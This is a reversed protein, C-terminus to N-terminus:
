YKLEKFSNNTLNFKDIYGGNIKVFMKSYQGFSDKSSNDRRLNFTKSNRLNPNIYCINNNAKYIYGEKNKPNIELKDKNNNEILVKNNKIKNKMM